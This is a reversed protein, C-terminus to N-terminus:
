ETKMDLSITRKAAMTCGNLNDNELQKQQWKAAM